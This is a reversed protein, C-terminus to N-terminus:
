PLHTRERLRRYDRGAADRAPGDWWDLGADHSGAVRTWGRHWASDRVVVVPTEVGDFQDATIDLIWGGRELWAHTRDSNASLGCVYTWAGLGLDCLYQGLLECTDGCAGRPFAQLTPLELDHSRELAARFAIAAAKVEEITETM